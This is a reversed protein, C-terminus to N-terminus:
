EKILRDVLIINRKDNITLNIPYAALEAWTVDKFDSHKGIIYAEYATLKHPNNLKM